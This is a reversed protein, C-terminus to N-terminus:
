LDRAPEAHMDLAPQRGRVYALWLLGAGVALVCATGVASGALYAASHASAYQPSHSVMAVVDNVGRMLLLVGGAVLLVLESRKSIRM